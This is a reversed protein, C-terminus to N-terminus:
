NQRSGLARVSFPFPFPDPLFYWNKEIVLRMMHKPEQLFRLCTALCQTCTALYNWWKGYCKIINVRKLEDALVSTSTGNPECPSRGISSNCLGNQCALSEKASRPWIRHQSHVHDCPNTALCSSQTLWKLISICNQNGDNIKTNSM